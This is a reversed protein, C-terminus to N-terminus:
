KAVMMRVDNGMADKVLKPMYRTRDFGQLLIMRTPRNTIESHPGRPTRRHTIPVPHIEASKRLNFRGFGEQEMLKEEETM